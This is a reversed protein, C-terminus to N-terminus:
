GLEAKQLNALEDALKQKRAELSTLHGKLEEAIESFLAKAAQSTSAGASRRFFKEESEHIAIATTLIEIMEELEEPGAM